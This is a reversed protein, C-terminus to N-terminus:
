AEARAGSQLDAETIEDVVRPPWHDIVSAACVIVSDEYVRDNIRLGASSYGRVVNTGGPGRDDLKM